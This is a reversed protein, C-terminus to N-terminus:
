KGIIYFVAVLNLVGKIKYVIEELNRLYNKINELITDINSNTWNYNNSLNAIFIPESLVLNVTNYLEQTEHINIDSDFILIKMYHLIKDKDLNGETILWYM